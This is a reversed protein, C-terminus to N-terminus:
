QAEPSTQPTTITIGKSICIRCLGETGWVVYRCGPCRHVPQDPSVAKAADYKPYASKIVPKHARPM